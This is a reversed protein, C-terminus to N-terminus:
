YAGFKRAADLMTLFNQKTHAALPVNIPTATPMLIFGGGSKADQMAQYVLQQIRAPPSNELEKLEINGMLILKDGWGKKVEALSIDGDPLPEIPDICAAGTKVLEDLNARINGHSHIRTIAGARNFCDIMPSLYRTCLKPFMSPPLYPVTCYEAGYIRVMVDHIDYKAVQKVIEMKRVFLKDLVREMREPETYLFVLLNDMGMLDAADSLPDGFDLLMIGHEGLESQQKFFKEMSVQPVPLEAQLFRDIDDEGKLYHQTYWVTHIGDSKKTQMTFPGASSQWVIDDLLYTGDRYVHHIVQATQEVYNPASMFICDSKERIADMLERYSPERNYWADRDYGCLEYCSVPVRDAPQRKLCALLRQRSTMEQM